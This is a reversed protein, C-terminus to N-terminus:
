AGGPLAKIKQLLGTAHVRSFCRYACRQPQHPNFLAALPVGLMLLLLMRHKNAPVHGKINSREASHATANFLTCFPVSPVPHIVGVCHFHGSMRQFDFAQGRSSGANQGSADSRTCSRHRRPGFAVQIWNRHQHTPIISRGMRLHTEMRQLVQMASM